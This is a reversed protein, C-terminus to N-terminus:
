QAAKDHLGIHAEVYLLFWLHLAVCLLAWGDPMAPCLIVQGALGTAM